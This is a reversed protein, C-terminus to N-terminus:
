CLLIWFMAAMETADLVTVSCRSADVRSEVVSFTVQITEVGGLAGPDFIHVGKVGGLRLNECWWKSDGFYTVLSRVLQPHTVVFALAIRSTPVQRAVIHTTLAVVDLLPISRADTATAILQHLRTPHDLQFLDYKDVCYFNQTEPCFGM